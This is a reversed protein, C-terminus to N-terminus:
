ITQQLKQVIQLIDGDESSKIRLWKVQHGQQNKLLVYFSHEQTSIYETVAQPIYGEYKQEIATQVEFPINQPQETIFTELLRGSQDYIARISRETMTFQAIEAKGQQKWTIQKAAPFDHHVAAIVNRGPSDTRNIISAYASQFTYAFSISCAIVIGSVLLAKKM